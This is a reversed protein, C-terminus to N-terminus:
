YMVTPIGQFRRQVYSSFNGGSYRKATFALCGFRRFVTSLSGTKPHFKLHIYKNSYSFLIQQISVFHNIVFKNVVLSCNRLIQRVRYVLPYTYVQINFATCRRSLIRRFCSNGEWPRAAEFWISKRVLFISFPLWKFNSDFNLFLNGLVTFYAWLRKKISQLFSSAM